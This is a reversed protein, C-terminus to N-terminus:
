IGNLRQPVFLKSPASQEPPEAAVSFVLML